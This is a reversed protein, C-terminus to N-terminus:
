ESINDRTNNDKESWENLISETASSVAEFYRSYYEKKKKGTTLNEYLQLANEEDSPIFPTYIYNTKSLEMIIPSSESIPLHYLLSALNYNKIKSIDALMRFFYDDCLYIAKEKKAVILADLQIYNIQGISFFHEGSFGKFLEFSIREDDSLRDTKINDLFDIITEWITPLKKDTEYLVIKDNEYALTGPSIVQINFIRKYQEQFFQIYSEPVIIRDKIGDLLYMWGMQSLLLLTSITPVFPSNDLDDIVPFGSYFALDKSFLLLKMADIYKSYDGSIFCEIPLGVGGDERNYARLLSKIHESHDSYKLASKMQKLLEQPENETIVFTDSGFRHPYKGIMTYIIRYAYIMRPMYEKIRYTVGKINVIQNTVSGCLKSYVATKRHYHPIGLSHNDPNDFEDESDLCLALPEASDDKPELIVVMNGAIAKRIPEDHYRRLNSNYYGFVYKYTNFDDEGNLYYLAKYVYYDADENKGLTSLANAAIICYEPKQSKTLVELYPAIDNYSFLGKDLHLAIIKFAVASDKTLSFYEKSYKLLSLKMETMDCYLIKIQLFDATCMNAYLFREAIRNAKELNTNQIIVTKNNKKISTVTKYLAKYIMKAIFSDIASLDDTLSLVLDLLDIEEWRAFLMMLGLRLQITPISSNNDLLERFIPLFFKKAINSDDVYYAICFFDELSSKYEDIANALMDQYIPNHSKQLTLLYAGKVRATKCKINPFITIVQQYNGNETLAVIYRQAFAENSQWDLSSYLKIAEDINSNLEHCIALHYKIIDNNQTEYSFTEYIAFAKGLYKADNLGLYYYSELYLNAILNENKKYEPSSKYKSLESILSDLKIAHTHLGNRFEECIVQIETCLLFLAYKADNNKNPISALIRNAESYKQKNFYSLGSYLLLQLKVQSDFTMSSDNLKIISDWLHSAFLKDIILVQTEAEHKSFDFITIPYTKQYFSNLWTAESSYEDSVLVSSNGKEVLEAIFRYKDLCIAGSISNNNPFLKKIEKSLEDMQLSLVYNKCLQVKEILLDETLKSYPIVDELNNSQSTTIIQLNEKSDGYFQYAVTRPLFFLKAVEPYKSLLNLMDQNSVPQLTIGAQLLMEEVEKYSKNTNTITKNCFLYIHDLKNKYHSIAKSMSEKIQTWSINNKFFKAQFSVRRRIPVNEKYPELIPDVEVGPNNHNAHPVATEKLFERYFLQLSLNEFAETYNDNCLEFQGWTCNPFNQLTNNM